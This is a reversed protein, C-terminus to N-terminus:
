FINGEVMVARLIEFGVFVFWKGSDTEREPGAVESGVWGLM